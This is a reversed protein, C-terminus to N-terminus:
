FVGFLKRRKKAASDQSIASTAADEIQHQMVHGAPTDRGGELRWVVRLPHLSTVRGITGREVKFHSGTGVPSMQMLRKTWKMKERAIVTQNPHFPPPEHGPVPRSMVLQSGTRGPPPRASSRSPTQQAANVADFQELNELIASQERLDFTCAVCSEVGRPNQTGCMPCVIFNRAVPSSVSLHPTAGRVRGDSVPMSHVMQQQTEGDERDDPAGINQSIFVQEDRRPMPRLSQGPTRRQGCMDCTALLALNEYSCYACTWVMHEPGTMEDAPSTEDNVSTETQEAVPATGSEEQRSDLPSSETAVEEPQARREAAAPPVPSVAAVPPSSRALFAEAQAVVHTNSVDGEALYRQVLRPNEDKLAEALRLIRKAAVLTDEDLKNREAMLIATQLAMIHVQEQEMSYRLSEATQIRRLKKKYGAQRAAPIEKKASDPLHNLDEISQRLKEANTQKLSERLSSLVSGVQGRDADEREELAQLIIVDEADARAVSSTHSFSRNATPIKTEDVGDVFEMVSRAEGHALTRPDDHKRQVADEPDDEAHRAFADNEHTEGDEVPSVASSSAELINRNEHNTGLGDKVYPSPLVDYDPSPTPQVPEEAGDIEASVTLSGRVEASTGGGAEDEPLGKFLSDPSAASGAELAPSAGGGPSSGLGAYNHGSMSSLVNSEPSSVEDQAMGAVPLGVESDNDGVPVDKDIEGEESVAEIDSTKDPLCASSAEAEDSGGRNTAAPVRQNIAAEKAEGADVVSKEGGANPTAEAGLIVWEGESADECSPKSSTASGSGPPWSFTEPPLHPDVNEARVRFVPINSLDADGSTVSSERTKYSALCTRLREIDADLVQMNTPLQFDYLNIIDQGAAVNLDTADAATTLFLIVKELTTRPSDKTMRPMEKSGAADGVGFATQEEPLERKIGQEEGGREMSQDEGPEAGSDNSFIRHDSSPDEDDDFELSFSEEEEEAPLGGDAVVDVARKQSDAGVASGFEVPSQATPTGGFDHDTSPSAGAADSHPFPSAASGNKAVAQQLAQDVQMQNGAASAAAGEVARAKENEGSNVHLLADKSRAMPEDLDDGQAVDSANVNADGGRAVRSTAPSSKTCAQATAPLVARRLEEPVKVPGNDGELGDNSATQSMAVFALKEGILNEYRDASRFAASTAAPSLEFLSGDSLVSGVAPSKGPGIAVSDADASQEASEASAVVEGAKDKEGDGGIEPPMVASTSPKDSAVQVGGPSITVLDSASRSPLSSFQWILDSQRLELPVDAAGRTPPSFSAAAAQSADAKVDFRSPGSAAGSDGGKKSPQEETVFASDHHPTTSTAGEAIPAPGLGQDQRNQEVQTEQLESQWVTLEVRRQEMSAIQLELSDIAKALRTSDAFAPPRESVRPLGLLVDLDLDEDSVGNADTGAAGSSTSSSPGTPLVHLSRARAAADKVAGAHRLLTDRKLFTLCEEIQGLLAAERAAPAHTGLSIEDTEENATSPASEQISELSSETAALKQALQEVEEGLESEVHSLLRQAASTHKRLFNNAVILDVPKLKIKSGILVTVTAADQRAMANELKRMVRQDLAKSDQVLKQKQLFAKARPLDDAPVSQEDLLAQVRLSDGKNMLTVLYIKQKLMALADGAELLLPHSSRKVVSMARQTQPNTGLDSIPERNGVSSTVGAQYQAAPSAGQGSSPRLDDETAPAEHQAERYVVHAAPTVSNGSPSAPHFSQLNMTSTLDMETGSDAYFLPGRGSPPGRTTGGAPPLPTLAAPVQASELLSEVGGTPSIAPPEDLANDATSSSGAIPGNGGFMPNSDCLLVQKELRHLMRELEKVDNTMAKERVDKLLSSLTSTYKSYNTLQGELDVVKRLLSKEGTRVRREDDFAARSLDTTGSGALSPAAVPQQLGQDLLGVGTQDMGDLYNNGLQQLDGSSSGNRNLARRLHRLFSRLDQMKEQELRLFRELGKKNSSATSGAPPVRVASTSSSASMGAAGLTSSTGAGTTNSFVSSADARSTFVSERKYTDRIHALELMRADKEENKRVVFLNRQARECMAVVEPPYNLPYVTGGPSRVVDTSSSAVGEDAATSANLEVNKSMANSSISVTPDSAAATDFNNYTTAGYNPVATDTLTQQRTGKAATLRVLNEAERDVGLSNTVQLLSSAAMLTRLATRVEEDFRTFTLAEQTPVERELARLGDVDRRQLLFSMQRRYEKVVQLRKAEQKDLPHRGPPPMSSSCSSSAVEVNDGVSVQLLNRASDLGGPVSVGSKADHAEKYSFSSAVRDATSAVRQSIDHDSALTQTRGEQKEYKADLEAFPVLGSAEDQQGAFATALVPAPVAPGAAKEPSFTGGALIAPSIVSAEAVAHEGRQSSLGAIGPAGAEASSSRTQSVRSVKAGYIMGSAAEARANEVQQNLRRQLAMSNRKAECRSLLHLTGPPLRSRLQKKDPPPFGGIARELEPLSESALARELPVTMMEVETVQVRTKEVLNADGEPIQYLFKQKSMNIVKFTTPQLLLRRAVETKLRLKEVYLAEAYNSPLVLPRTATAVDVEEPEPLSYGQLDLIVVRSKLQMNTPAQGAGVGIGTQDVEEAITLFIDADDADVVVEEDNAVEVTLFSKEDLLLSRARDAGALRKGVATALQVLAEDDERQKRTPACAETLAQFEGRLLRCQSTTLGEPANKPSGPTSDDVQLFDPTSTSQHQEQHLRERSDTTPDELLVVHDLVFKQLAQRVYRLRRQQQRRNQARPSLLRETLTGLNQAFRKNLFEGSHVQERTRGDAVSTLYLHLEWPISLSFAIEGPKSLEGHSCHIWFDPSEASTPLCSLDELFVLPTKLKQDGIFASGSSAPTPQLHERVFDLLQRVEEASFLEPQEAAMVQFLTEVAVFTELGFPDFAGLLERRSQDEGHAVVVPRAKEVILERWLGEWDCSSVQTRFLSAATQFESHQMACLAHKEVIQQKRERGGSLIRGFFSQKGEDDLVSFCRSLHLPWGLAQMLRRRGELSRPPLEVGLVLSAHEECATRLVDHGLVVLKDDETLLAANMARETASAYGLLLSSDCPSSPSPMSSTKSSPAVLDMTAGDEQEPSSVLGGVFANIRTVATFAILTREIELIDRVEIARLLEERYGNRMREEMVAPDEDEPSAAEGRDALAADRHDPSKKIEQHMVDSDGRFAPDSDRPVYSVERPQSVSNDAANAKFESPGEVAGVRARDHLVSGEEPAEGPTGIITAVSAKKSARSYLALVSPEVALGQEQARRLEESFQAFLSQALQTNRQLATHLEDVDVDLPAGEAEQDVGVAGSISAQVARGARAALQEEEQREEDVDELVVELRTSIARLSKLLADTKALDQDLVSNLSALERRNSHDGEDVEFFRGEYGYASTSFGPYESFQLTRFDDSPRGDGPASLTEEAETKQPAALENPRPLSKLLADTKSIGLDLASSLSVDNRGQLIMTDTQIANLDENPSAFAGVAMRRKDSYSSGAEADDAIKMEPLTVLDVKSSSTEQDRPDAATDSTLAATDPVFAADQQWAKQEQQDEALSVGMKEELRNGGSSSRSVPEDTQDAVTGVAAQLVGVSPVFTKEVHEDEVPTEVFPVPVYLVSAVASEVVQAAPSTNQHVAEQKEPISSSPSVMVFPEPARDKEVVVPKIGESIDQNQQKTTKEVTKDSISIFAPEEESAPAFFPALNSNPEQENIKFTNAQDDGAPSSTVPPVAQSQVNTRLMMNSDETVDDLVPGRKEMPQEKSGHRENRVEADASSSLQSAAVSSVEDRVIVAAGIPQVGGLVVHAKNAGTDAPPIRSAAAAAVSQQNLMLSLPGQPLEGKEPSADVSVSASDPVGVIRKAQNFLSYEKLPTTAAAPHREAGGAKTDFASPTPPKLFMSTSLPAALEEADATAPFPAAQERKIGADKQLVGNGLFSPDVYSLSAPAVDLADKATKSADVIEAEKNETVCSVRPAVGSAATERVRVETKTEPDPQVEPAQQAESPPDDVVPAPAKTQGTEVAPAPAKTQSVSADPPLSRAVPEAVLPTEATIEPVRETTKSMQLGPSEEAVPFLRTPMAYGAPYGGHPSFARELSSASPEGQAQNSTGSGGGPSPSYTMLDYERGVSSEFRQSAGDEPMNPTLFFHQIRKSPSSGPDVSLTSGMAAVPPPSTGPPPRGEMSADEGQADVVQEAAKAPGDNENLPRWEGDDLVDETFASKQTAVGASGPGAVEQEPARANDTAAAADRTAKEISSVLLPGEGAAANTEPMLASGATQTTMFNINPRENASMETSALVGRAAVIVSEMSSIEDGDVIEQLRNKSISRKSLLSRLEERHRTRSREFQELMMLVEGLLMRDGASLAGGKAVLSDRKRALDRANKRTLREGVVSTPENNRSAAAVVNDGEDGAKRDASTEIVGSSAKLSNTINQLMKDQIGRVVAKAADIEGPPVKKGPYEAEACAILHSVARLAQQRKDPQPPMRSENMAQLKQQRFSMAGAPRNSPASPQSGILVGGPGLAPFSELTADVVTAGDQDAAASDAEAVADELRALAARLDVTADVQCLLERAASIDNGADDVIHIISFDVGLQLRESLAQLEEAPLRQAADLFQERAEAVLSKLNAVASEHIEETGLAARVKVVEEALPESSAKGLREALALADRLQQVNRTRLAKSLAHRVDRLKELAGLHERVLALSVAAVAPTIQERLQKTKTQESDSQTSPAVALALENLFARVERVDSSQLIGIVPGDCGERKAREMLREVPEDPAQRVAAVGDVGEDGPFGGHTASGPVVAREDEKTFPLLAERQLRADQLQEHGVSNPAGMGDAPSKQASSGHPLLQANNQSTTIGFARGALLMQKNELSSSRTHSKPSPVMIDGFRELVFAQEPIAMAATVLPLQEVHEQDLRPQEWFDQERDQANAGHEPISLPQHQGSSAAVIQQQTFNYHPTTANNGARYSSSPPQNSTSFISGNSAGYPLAQIDTNYGAGVDPDGGPNARPLGGAGFTTSFGPQGTGGRRAHGVDSSTGKPPRHGPMQLRDEEANRATSRTVAAAQSGQQM